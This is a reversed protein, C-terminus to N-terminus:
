RAKNTKVGQTFRQMVLVKNMTWTTPNLIGQTELLNRIENPTKFQWQPSRAIASLDFGVQNGDTDTGFPNQFLIMNMTRYIRQAFNSENAAEGNPQGFHLTAIDINNKDFSVGINPVQSGSLQSLIYDIDLMDFGANKCIHLAKKAIEDRERLSDRYEKMHSTLAKEYAIKKDNVEKELKRQAEAIDGTNSIIRVIDEKKVGEGLWLIKKLTEPNNGLWLMNSIHLLANWVTMGPDKFDDSQLFFQVESGQLAKLVHIKPMNEASAKEYALWQESIAPYFDWIPVDTDVRLSSGELGITRTPPIDGINMRTVQGDQSTELYNWFSRIEENGNVVGLGAKIQARQVEWDVDPLTPSFTDFQTQLNPNVSLAYSKYEEYAQPSENYFTQAVQQFDEPRNELNQFFSEIQSIIAEQSVNNSEDQDSLTAINALIRDIEPSSLSAQPINQFLEQFTDVKEKVEAEAEQVEAEAEQVEAEAEQVAEQESQQEIAAAEVTINQIWIDEKIVWFNVLFAQFTTGNIPYGNEYIYDQIQVPDKSRVIEIFEEKQSNNEPRWFYSQLKEYEIQQNWKETDWSYEDLLVEEIESPLLNEVTEQTEPTHVVPEFVESELSPFIESMFFIIPTYGIM